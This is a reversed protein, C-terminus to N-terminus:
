LSTGQPSYTPPYPVFTCNAPGRPETLLSERRKADTRFQAKSRAGSKPTNSISSMLLSVHYLHESATHISKSSSCAPDPWSSSAGVAALAGNDSSTGAGAWESAVGAGANARPQGIGHVIEVPGSSARAHMARGAKSSASSPSALIM